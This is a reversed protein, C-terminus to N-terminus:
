SSCPTFVGAFACSSSYMPLAGCIKALPMFGIMVHRKQRLYAKPCQTLFPPLCAVHFSGNNKRSGSPFLNRKVKLQLLHWISIYAFFQTSLMRCVRYKTGAICSSDHCFFLWMLVLFMKCSCNQLRCPPTRLSEGNRVFSYNQPLPLSERGISVVAPLSLRGCAWRNEKRRCFRGDQRLM